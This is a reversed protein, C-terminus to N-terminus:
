EEAMDDMLFSDDVLDEYAIPADLLGAALAWEQAAAFDETSPLGPPAFMPVAAFGGSVIAEILADQEMGVTGVFQRYAQTDGALANIAEEARAYARLFAHVADGKEELVQSRFGIMEQAGGYNMDDSDMLVSGGFMTSIVQTFAQDVLTVKIQGDLIKDMLNGVDASDLYIIEVQDESLGAHTLMQGVLIEADAGKFLSLPTSTLDDMSEIGSGPGTIIAFYSLNTVEVERVVRVNGAVANLQLIRNLSTLQLGDSEGAEVAAQLDTVNMFDVFEVVVGEEEFYGADQAVHLPLSNISPRVLFRLDPERMEQEAVPAAAEEAMDDTEAMEEEMVEPLFQGDVVDAYSQAEALLGAGLAWDHVSSYEAESPVRARTLTPVLVFGTNFASKLLQGSGRDNMELFEAYASSDGAMANITEVAQEYAALFARVAEGKEALVEARIILAEPVYDVNADDIIVVGGYTLAFQNYPGPLTAADIDGDVLRQVRNYIGPVDVYEVDESSMGASALLTDTMYQIITNLSLGIRKGALDEVSEIGSGRGTVIHVFTTNTIGVHRVVHVGVGAANVKLASVLDAQFGDIEGAIAAAQADKGSPYDVIEVTIGVEDFYGGDLAVYLPLMNVVPLAGIRLDPEAMEDQALLPTAVLMLLLAVLLLNRYKM